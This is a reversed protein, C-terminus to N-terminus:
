GLIVFARQYWSNFYWAIGPKCTSDVRVSHDLHLVNSAARVISSAYFHYLRYSSFQISCSANVHYDGICIRAQYDILTPSHRNRNCLPLLKLCLTFRLLGFVAYQRDTYAGSLFCHLFITKKKCSFLWSFFAGCNGLYCIVVGLFDEYQHTIHSARWTWGRGLERQGGINAPMSSYRQQRLVTHQCKSCLYSM